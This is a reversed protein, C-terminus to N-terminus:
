KHKINIHNLIDLKLIKNVLMKTKLVIDKFGKKNLFSKTPNELTKFSGEHVLKSRLKYLNDIHENVSENYIKVEDVANDFQKFYVRLKGNISAKKKRNKYPEYLENNKDNQYKYNALSEIIIFYTLYKVKLNNTHISYNYLEILHQFKSADKILLLEYIEKFLEKNFNNKLVYGEIRVNYNIIDNIELEYGHANKKNRVGKRELERENSIKFKESVRKNDYYKDFPTGYFVNIDELFFYIMISQIIAEKHKKLGRYEIKLSKSENIKKDKEGYITLTNLLQFKNKDINIFNSGIIHIYAELVITKNNM